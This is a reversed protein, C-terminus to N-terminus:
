ACSAAKKLQDATNTSSAENGVVQDLRRLALESNEAEWKERDAVSADAPIIIEGNTNCAPANRGCSALMSAAALGLIFHMRM